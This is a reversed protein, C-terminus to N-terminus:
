ICFISNEQSVIHTNSIGMCVFMLLSEKFFIISHYFLANNSLMNVVTWFNPTLLIKRINKFITVQAWLPQM